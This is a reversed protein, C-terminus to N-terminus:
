YDRTERVLRGSVVKSGAVIHRDLLEVVQEQNDPTLEIDIESVDIETVIRDPRQPLLTGRREGSTPVLVGRINGASDHLVQVRM